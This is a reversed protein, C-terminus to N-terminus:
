GTSVHMLTALYHAAGQFYCEIVALQIHSSLCPRDHANVTIFLLNIECMSNDIDNASYEAVASNSVPSM